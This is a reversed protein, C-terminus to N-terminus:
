VNIATINLFEMLTIFSAHRFQISDEFCRQTGQLNNTTINIRSFSDAPISLFKIILAYLGRQTLKAILVIIVDEQPMSSGNRSVSPLSAESQQNNNNSQQSFIHQWKHAAMTSSGYNIKNNYQIITQRTM